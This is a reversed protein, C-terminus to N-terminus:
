ESREHKQEGTNREKKEAKEGPWHKGKRRGDIMRRKFRNAIRGNTVLLRRWRRGRQEGGEKRRGRARGRKRGGERM